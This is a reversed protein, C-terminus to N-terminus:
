GSVPNAQCVTNLGRRDSMLYAGPIWDTSFLATRLTYLLKRALCRGFLYWDHDIVPLSSAVSSTLIQIWTTVHRIARTRTRTIRLLARRSLVAFNPVFTHGRIRPWVISSSLHIGRFSGPSFLARFLILCLSSVVASRLQALEVIIIILLEPAELTNYSYLPQIMYIIHLM